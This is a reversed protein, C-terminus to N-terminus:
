EESLISKLKSKAEGRIQDLKPRLYLEGYGIDKGYMLAADLVDIIVSEVVRLVDETSDNWVRKGDPNDIRFSSDVLDSASYRTVGERDAVLISVMGNMGECYGTIAYKINGCDNTLYHGVLEKMQENTLPKM